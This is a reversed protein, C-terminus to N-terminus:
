EEEELKFIPDPPLGKKFRTFSIKVYQQFSYDDALLTFRYTPRFVQMFSDLAPETLSTLRRVLAKNFRHDIFKDQEQMLLRKQFSAMSRNRKFRFMNIIEDLDFGVGAGYNSNNVKLKPKQYNFIKAYDIRNQISDLKYNKPRIKVEKLVPVNVQLSIDFAMPNTIKLVPFKVTPKNLYSFWVSDKEMVEIEYYGDANTVTGRGSTSLVSVSQMPNLRSSDYVIGKLKYTQANATTSFFLLGAILSLTIHFFNKLM